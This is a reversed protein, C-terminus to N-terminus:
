DIEKLKRKRPEKEKDSDKLPKGNREIEENRNLLKKLL